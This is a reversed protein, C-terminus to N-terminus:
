FKRKLPHRVLKTTQSQSYVLWILYFPLFSISKLVIRQSSCAQLNFSKGCLQAIKKSVIRKVCGTDLHMMTKLTTRSNFIGASSFFCPFYASSYRNLGTWNLWETADSEAVGHVEARWAERDMVLEQLESLSMDMSDTIGDLWRLRQRGRRRRGEIMGLILTKEFSVTIWMLYGFYQIKLKLTLGELSYEPNIEKLTSQNSRRATRLVRLLRRWCWLEFVDIRRHEAKKITSSECGYTVVPFVM